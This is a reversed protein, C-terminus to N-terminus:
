GYIIWLNTTSSMVIGVDVRSGHMMIQGQGGYFDGKLDTGHSGGMAGPLHFCFKMPWEIFLGNFYIYWRFMSINLVSIEPHTKKGTFYICYVGSQHNLGNWIQPICLHKGDVVMSELRLYEKIRYKEVTNLCCLSGFHVLM